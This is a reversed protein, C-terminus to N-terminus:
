ELAALTGLLIAVMTMTVLLTRVGFRWRIWPAATAAASLVMLLGFPAFFGYSDANRWLLFGLTTRLPEDHFYPYPRTLVFEAGSFYRPEVSFGLLGGTSGVSLYQPSPKMWEFVRRHWPGQTWLLALWACMAICAFSAAIRLGRLM